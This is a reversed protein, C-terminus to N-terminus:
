PLAKSADWHVPTEFQNFEPASIQPDHSRSFGNEPDKMWTNGWLALPIKNKIQDWFLFANTNVPQTM